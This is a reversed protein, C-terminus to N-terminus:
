EDNGCEFLCALCKRYGACLVQWFICLSVLSLLAFIEFYKDLFEQNESSNESSSQDPDVNINSISDLHRKPITNKTHFSILTYM